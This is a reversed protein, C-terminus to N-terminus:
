GRLSRKIMEKQAFVISIILNWPMRMYLFPQEFCRKRVPFACVSEWGAPCIDFALTSIGSLGSGRVWKELGIFRFVLFRVVAGAMFQLPSRAASVSAIHPSFTDNLYTQTSTLIIALNFGQIATRSIPM